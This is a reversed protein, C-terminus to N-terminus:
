EFTTWYNPVVWVAPPTRITEFSAYDVWVEIESSAGAPIPESYWAKGGGIIEEEANFLLVYVNVDSFGKSYNNTFRVSVYNSFEGIIDAGDINFPNNTLEYDEVPEGALIRIDYETTTAGQPVGRVWPTVGIQSEPLFIDLYDSGITTVNGVSDYFTIHILTDKIVQNTPNEIVMGGMVFGFDGDYFRYSLADWLVADQLGEKQFGFMPYAEISAVNGTTTLYSSFGIQDRGPLFDLSTTTSGVVQGAGDFGVLYVRVNLYTNPDSNSIIGTAIPFGDNDWHRVNKTSFPSSSGDAAHQSLFDWSIVVNDVQVNDDGLFLNSTLWFDQGPFVQATFLYDEGVKNGASDYALVRFDLGEFRTETHPNSFQFAAFVQDGVQFWSQDLFILDKVAPDAVETETEVAPQEGLHPEPTPIEIVIQPEDTPTATPDPASRRCALALLLPIVFFLIFLRSQKSM